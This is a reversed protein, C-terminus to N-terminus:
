KQGLLKYCSYHGFHPSHIVALDKIVTQHVFLVVHKHFLAIKHWVFRFVLHLNVKRMRLWFYLNSISSFIAM